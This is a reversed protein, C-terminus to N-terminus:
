DIGSIKIIQCIFRGFSLIKVIRVIDRCDAAVYALEGVPSMDCLSIRYICRCEGVGAVAGSRQFGVTFKLAASAGCICGFGPCSYHAIGVVSVSLEHIGASEARGPAGVGVGKLLSVEILGRREDIRGRGAVHTLAFANQCAQRFIRIRQKACAAGHSQCPASKIGAVGSPGAVQHLIESGGARLLLIPHCASKDHQGIGIRSQALIIECLLIQATQLLIIGALLFIDLTHYGRAQFLGAAPSSPYAWM